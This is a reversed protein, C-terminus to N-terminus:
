TLGYGDLFCYRCILKTGVQTVMPPTENHRRPDVCDPNECPAFQGPLSFWVMHTRSEITNLEVLKRRARPRSATSATKSKLLREIEEKSLPKM